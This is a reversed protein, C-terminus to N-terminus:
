DVRTRKRGLVKNVLRRVRSPRRQEVAPSGADLRWTKSCRAAAFRLMHIGGYISPEGRYIQDAFKRCDTAAVLGCDILGLGEELCTQIADKVGKFHGDHLLIVAKDNLYPIVGRLDARCPEYYHNADIFVLDFKGGVAASAQPLDAPSHGDIFTVQASLRARLHPSISHEPLSNPDLSVFRSGPVHELAAALVLTSGGRARGIELTATPQMAMALSYLCLKEQTSTQSILTLRMDSFAAPLAIGEPGTFYQPFRRVAEPATAEARETALIRRLTEQVLDSRGLTEAVMAYNMLLYDRFSSQGVSALAAEMHRLKDDASVNGYIKEDAEAQSIAKTCLYVRSAVPVDDLVAFHDQFVEMMINGWYYNWWGYDQQILISRGPILRPFWTRTAHDHLEATKCIDLFLIEVPEGNWWQELLDGAHVEVQNGHPAINQRFRDEFSQAPKLDFQVLHDFWRNEGTSFIDYSHIRKTAARDSRSLAANEAL